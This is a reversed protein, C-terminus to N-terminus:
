ILDLAKFSAHMGKGIIVHDHVQIGLSTGADIIEKTMAIDARSPTPDGSPHNHVLIIAAANLAVARKMVERVYVPAHDVTGKSQQEDAILRNKKDLFLIRFQEIPEHAMITHCYDLLARWSSLVPRNMVKGQALKQAAAQVIRFEIVAADGIGKFQKLRDPDASIVDAFSGFTDILKKALPKVDGRPNARFLVLELLEYDALADTGGELFRERLRQRHGHFHPADKSADTM